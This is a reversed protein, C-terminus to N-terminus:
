GHYSAGIGWLFYLLSAAAGLEAAAWLLARKAGPLPDGGDTGKAGKMASPSGLFRDGRLHLIWAILLYGLMSVPLFVALYYPRGYGVLALLCSIGAAVAALITGYLLDALLRRM